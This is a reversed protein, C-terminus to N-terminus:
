SSRNCYTATVRVLPVYSCQPVNRIRKCSILSQVQCSRLSFGFAIEAIHHDSSSQSYVGSLKASAHPSLTPARWPARMSTSYMSSGNTRLHDDGYPDPGYGFLPTPRSSLVVPTLTLPQALQACEARFVCSFLFGWELTCGWFVNPLVVGQLRRTRHRETSLQATTELQTHLSHPFFSAGDARLLSDLGGQLGTWAM